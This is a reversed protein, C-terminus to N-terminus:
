CGRSTKISMSYSSAIIKVYIRPDFKHGGDYFLLNNHFLSYQKYDTDNDDQHANHREDGADFQAVFGGPM